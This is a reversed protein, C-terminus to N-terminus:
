KYVVNQHHTRGTGSFRHQSGAQGRDQRRQRRRFQQFYRHNGRNGAFDAIASQGRPPWEAARVMGRAHRRQGAAAKAGPRALNREGVLAHQEEVFQRLEIRAHQIRQALRKLVALDRDGAGVVADSIRCTEHQNRRHVGAAATV